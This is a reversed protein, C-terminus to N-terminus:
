LNSFDTVSRERPDVHLGTTHLFAIARQIEMLVGSLRLEVFGGEKEDVSAREINVVINFDKSLRYLIPSKAQVPTVTSLRVYIANPQAVTDEPRAATSASSTAEGELLGRARLYNLAQEIEGTSGEIDLSIVGYSSTVRASRINTVVNFLKGLRWVIPESTTSARSTIEVTTVPM